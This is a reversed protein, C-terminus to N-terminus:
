CDRVQNLERNRPKQAHSLLDLGLCTGFTQNGEGFFNRLFSFSDFPV